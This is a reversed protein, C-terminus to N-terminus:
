ETLEWCKGGDIPSVNGTIAISIDVWKGPKNWGPPADDPIIAERRQILQIAAGSVNEPTDVMLWVGWKTLKIVVYSHGGDNRTARMAEPDISLRIPKNDDWSCDFEISAARAPTGLALCVMGLLISRVSM